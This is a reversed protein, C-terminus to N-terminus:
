FFDTSLFAGLDCPRDLFGAQLAMGMILEARGRDPGLDTFTVFGKRLVREAVNKDVGTYRAQIDASEYPHGVVYEGAAAMASVFSHALEPSKQLLGDRIVLVCCIHGPSVEASRELIRGEGRAESATHWPESCLFGDIEHRALSSLVYSPSIYKTTVIRQDAPLGLMKSLLLGHTSISHPLAVTSGSAFCRGLRDTRVTVASGDHHGDMVYRIALGQNRLAMALPVMVFAADLMAGRLAKILSTWSLFRSLHLDYDERNHMQHAVMALLHDSIPLYGLRVSRGRSTGFEALMRQKADHLRRKVTGQPVNLMQAIDRYPRGHVYRQICAERAVGPLSELIRLVTLRDLHRTCLTVPDANDCAENLADGEAITATRENQIRIRDCHRILITRFWGPFADPDRLEALKLYATLFAEQAADEALAPEGVRATAVARAMDKFMAVIEAFANKDGTLVRRVHAQYTIM